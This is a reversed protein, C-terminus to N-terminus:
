EGRGLRQEMETIGVEGAYVRRFYERRRRRDADPDPRPRQMTPSVREGHIRRPKWAVSPQIATENFEAFIEPFGTVIASRLPSVSPATPAAPLIRASEGKLRAQEAQLEGIQPSVRAVFGDVSARMADVAASLRAQERQLEGVLREQEHAAAAQATLRKSITEMASRLQGLETKLAAQQQRLEVRAIKGSFSVMERDRQFAREELLQIRQRADVDAKPLFCHAQLAAIARDRQISDEELAAIRSVAEAAALAEAFEDSAKFETLRASLAQFGFEESLLSLGSCNANTIRIAGDELASIFRRFVGLPIRCQIVYPAAALAVNNKFLNCKNILQVGSVQVQENPHTLTVLAM